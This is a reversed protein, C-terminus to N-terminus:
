PAPARAPIPSRSRRAAAPGPVRHLGDRSSPRGGINPGRRRSPPPPGPPASPRLWSASRGCRPGRPPPCDWRRRRAAGRPAARPRAPGPPTRPVRRRGGPSGTRPSGPPDTRPPPSAALRPPQGRCAAAAPLRRRASRRPCCPAAPGGGEPLEGAALQMGALRRLVRQGALQLLLQPDVYRLSAEGGEGEGGVVVLPEM